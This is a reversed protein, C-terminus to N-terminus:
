EGNRFTEFSTNSAATTSSWAPKRIQLILFNFNPEHAERPHHSVAVRVKARLMSQCRIDMSQGYLKKNKLFTQKDNPRRGLVTVKDSQSHLSDALM